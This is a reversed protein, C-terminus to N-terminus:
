KWATIDEKAVLCFLAISSFKWKDGVQEGPVNGARAQELLTSKSCKLFEAAQASEWVENKIKIKVLLRELDKLDVLVLTQSM